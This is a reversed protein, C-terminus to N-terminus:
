QSVRRAAARQLKGRLREPDAQGTRHLALEVRREQSWKLIAMSTLETGYCIRFDAYSNRNVGHRRCVDATKQVAEQERLIGIIQEETFRSRRM